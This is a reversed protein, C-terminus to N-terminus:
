APSVSYEAASLTTPIAIQKATEGGLEKQIFYLMAKSADIPSGGGVAVIIDCKADKFAQQGKRIGAIPSHEGIEHFTAGYTNHEKLVAEVKKVVDTKLIRILWLICNLLLSSIPYDPSVKTVLSKGTVILAKTGGVTKLLAPLATKMSGPGYYLGKLTDTYSYFGQYRTSPIDRTDLISM